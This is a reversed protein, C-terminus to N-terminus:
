AEEQPPDIQNALQTCVGKIQSLSGLPGTEVYFEPYLDCIDAADRLKKAVEKKHNRVKANFGEVHPDAVKDTM